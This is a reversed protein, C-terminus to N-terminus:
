SMMRQFKLRTINHYVSSKRFMWNFIVDLLRFDSNELITSGSYLISIVYEEEEFGCPCLCRSRSVKQVSRLCPISWTVNFLELLNSNKFLNIMKSNLHWIQENGLTWQRNGWYRMSWWNRAWSSKMESFKRPKCIETTM